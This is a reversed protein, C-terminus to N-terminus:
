ILNKIAQHVEYEGEPICSVNHQNGNSPLELTKCRYILKEGDFIYLSGKTSDKEYTRSIVVKM